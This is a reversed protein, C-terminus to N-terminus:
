RENERTEGLHKIKADLVMKLSNAYENIMMSSFFKDEILVDCDRAILIKERGKKEKGNIVIKLSNYYESLLDVDEQQKEYNQNKSNKVEEKIYEEYESITREEFAETTSQLEEKNLDAEGFVYDAMVNELIDADQLEEETAYEDDPYEEDYEEEDEYEEDHYEDVYFDSDDYNDLDIEEGFDVKLIYAPKKARKNVETEIITGVRIDKENDALSKKSKDNSFFISETYSANPAMYASENNKSTKSEGVGYRDLQENAYKILEENSKNVAKLDDCVLYEDEFKRILRILKTYSDKELFSYYYQENDYEILIKRATIEEDLYKKISIYAIKNINDKIVYGNKTFRAEFDIKAEKDIIHFIKIKNKEQYLYSKFEDNEIKDIINEIVEMFIDNM